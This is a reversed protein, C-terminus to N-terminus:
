KITRPADAMLDITDDEPIEVKIYRLKTKTIKGSANIENIHKMTKGRCIYTLITNAAVGTAKALEKGSDAIFVPLEFIDNTVAMYLYKVKRNPETTTQM